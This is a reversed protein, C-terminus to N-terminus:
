RMTSLVEVFFGQNYTLGELLSPWEAIYKDLEYVAENTGDVDSRQINTSPFGNVAMILRASSEFVALNANQTAITARSIQNMIPSVANAALLALISVVVILETM